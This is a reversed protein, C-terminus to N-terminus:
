SRVRATQPHHRYMFAESLQLGRDEALDFLESVEDPHRSLPKECLVHKGAELARRTWEM